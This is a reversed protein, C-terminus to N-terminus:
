EPKCVLVPCKAKVLVANAVSGLVLRNLGSYGHSGMVIVDAGIELATEAIVDAANDGERFLTTMSLASFRSQIQAFAQDADAKAQQNFATKENETLYSYPVCAYVVYLQAGVTGALQAAKMAANISCDSGDTALLIKSFM